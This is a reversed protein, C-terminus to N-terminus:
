RGAQDRRFNELGEPSATQNFRKVAAKSGGGGAAFRYFWKREGPTMRAKDMLENATETDGDKLAQRIDPAVTNMADLHERKAGAMEGYAPGGPFGKSFQLGALPAIAHITDMDEWSLKSKGTAVSPIARITDMPLQSEVFHKAIQGAIKAVGVPLGLDEVANKDWVPRPAGEFGKDNQAIQLLPRVLTSEKKALMDHFHTMWGAFDEGVKGFSFRYYRATGDDSYGVLIRDKKGPENESMPTLRSMTDFPNLIRLPNDKIRAYVAAARREYGAMAEHARATDGTALGAVLGPIGEPADPNLKHKFYDQLTSGGLYMLALDAAFIAASKRRMVSVARNREEPGMDREIQAQVDRPMGTIVDKVAGLNGTTFSRSFEELNLFKRALTSMSENPIAGAYRNALHSAMAVATSRDFGQKLFQDRAHVALGAQIKAVQNWLLTNHWFDGAKYLGKATALSASESLPRIAGAVAKTIPAQAWSQERPDDPIHTAIGTIDQRNGFKSIPVLGGQIFERMETSQPDKLVRNGDVFVRGTMVRGPAAPFSRGLVVSLHIAPSYMISEVAMTKLGMAAQYLKGDPGDNLIARLPGEFEKAVHLPVRQPFRFPVAQSRVGLEVGPKAARLPEGIEPHKDLFEDFKAKARPAIENLMEPAHVYAHVLNAMKETGERVYKKYHGSVDAPDRSAFRADALARLEKAVGPSGQMQKQLGYKFDIQHGLEHTLVSEPGAFKTKVQGARNASGWWGAQKLNALREHSIGLAEGVKGLQDWLAKDHAEKMGLEGKEWKYTTFAPHNITFHTQDNPQIDVLNQGTVEGMRKINNILERGAIARELRGMALPMTLIDHVMHFGEGFHAKGAAEAEEITQYKRQLLSESSTRLNTGELHGANIGTKGTPTRPVQAVRGDEGIMAAMHPVWYPVGSTEDVMGVEKARNLLNEGYDHLVKMTDREQESLRGLGRKPDTEGNLRMQNEEEGADFMRKRDEPSYNERIIDHFKGWQYRALRDANAFDKAVAMARESGVVMPATKMQVARTIDGLNDTASKLLPMKRVRDLLPRAADKTEEDLGKPPEPVHALRTDAIGRSMGGQGYERDNVGAATEGSGSESFARGSRRALFGDRIAPLREGATEYQPAEGEAAAHAMVDQLYSATKPAERQLVEKLEATNHAVMAQAFLEAQMTHPSDHLHSYQNGLPYEILEGVRPDKKALAVLERAIPGIPAPQGDATKGMLWDSTSSYMDGNWDMVHAHEHLLIKAVTNPHMTLLDPAMAVKYRNDDGLRASAHGALDPDISYDTDAHTWDLGKRDLWGKIADVHEGMKTELAARTRPDAMLKRNVDIRRKTAEAQTEGGGPEVKDWGEHFLPKQGAAEAQDVARDSGALRFDEPRPANARATAEAETKGQQAAQARLGEPTPNALDLEPRNGRKAQEERLAKLIEKTGELRREYNPASERDAKNLGQKKVTSKEAFAIDRAIEADTMKSARDAIEAKWEPTIGDRPSPWPEAPAEVPKKRAAAAAEIREAIPEFKAIDEDSAGQAKMRDIFEQREPPRNRQGFPWEQDKNRERNRAEDQLAAEREAAAGERSYVTRGNVKGGKMGLDPRRPVGIDTLWKDIEKLAKKPGPGPKAAQAQEAAHRIKDAAAQLAEERTDYRPTHPFAGLPEAHGQDFARHMMDTSKVFKGNADKALHIRAGPMSKDLAKKPMEITEHDTLKEPPTFEDKKAGAPRVEDRDVTAFQRGATPNDLQVRVFGEGDTILTGTETKGKRDFEVKDGAKVSEGSKAAAEGGRESGAPQVERGAEVREGGGAGGAGPQDRLADPRGSVATGTEAEGRVASETTERGPGPENGPNREVAAHTDHADVIEQVARMFGAHDDEHQMAAREVANPDIENARNIVATHEHMWEHAGAGGHEIAYAHDEMLWLDHQIEEDTRGRTEIGMRDAQDMMENRQKLRAIAEWRDGQDQMPHVSGPERLEQQILERALEHAGGPQAADALEVDRDSLYGSQQMWETLRDMDAGNKHFLRGRASGDARKGGLMIVGKGRAGGRAVKEDVGMDSREDSHIGGLEDSIRHFFPSSGVTPPKPAEQKKELSPKANDAQIRAREAKFKEIRAKQEEPPLEAWFKGRYPDSALAPDYPSVAMGEPIKGAAITPEEGPQLPNDGTTPRVESRREVGGPAGAVGEPTAAAPEAPIVDAAPAEEPIGGTEVAPSPPTAPAPQEQEIPHLKDAKALLAAAAEPDKTHHALDRMENAANENDIRKQEAKLQAQIAAKAQPTEALDHLHELEIQKDTKPPPAAKIEEPKEPELGPAESKPAPAAKVSEPTIEDVNIGRATPAPPNEIGEEPEVFHPPPAGEVHEVDPAGAEAVNIGTAAPPPEGPSGPKQGMVARMQDAPSVGSAKTRARDEEAAEGHAAEHEAARAGAAGHYGFALGTLTEVGAQEATPMLDQHYEEPSTANEAARQAIGLPTSVAAGTAAGALKAAGASAGARTAFKAGAAFPVFSSAQDIIYRPVGAKAIETLSYGKQIMDQAMELTPSAGAAIGVEPQVVLAGVGAVTGAIRGATNEQENAKTRYYEKQMAIQDDMAKFIVDSAAGEPVDVGQARAEAGAGEALSDLMIGATRTITPAVMGGFTRGAQQMVGLENIDQAQSLSEAPFTYAGGESIGTSGPRPVVPGPPMPPAGPQGQAPLEKQKANAEAMVRKTRPDDAGYKARAQAVEVDLPDIGTSSPPRRSEPQGEGQLSEVPFQYGM